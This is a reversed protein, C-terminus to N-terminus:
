SDNRAAGQGRARRAPGTPVVGPNPPLARDGALLHRHEPIKKVFISAVPDTYILAWNSDKLLFRFLSSKTDFLIWTVGYKELVAEWGPEFDTVRSYEKVRASGYM